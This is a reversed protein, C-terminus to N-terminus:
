SAPKCTRVVNFKRVVGLRKRSWASSRARRLSKDIKTNKHVPWLESCVIPALSLLYYVDRDKGVVLEVLEIFVGKAAAIVIACSRVSAFTLVIAASFRGAGVIITLLQRV